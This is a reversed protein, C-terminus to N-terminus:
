NKPEAYLKKGWRQIDIRPIQHKDFLDAVEQNIEKIAGKDTTRVRTEYNYKTGGETFNLSGLYAISGDIVYVKSHFFTGRYNTERKPSLYVKLPFLTSYNYNYIRKNKIRIRFYNAVLLLIGISIFGFLIERYDFFYWIASYIIALSVSAYLLITIINHWNDRTKKAEKDTIRHQNILKYINKERFDSFDEIKDTTVLSIEIGREKLGILKKVLSASLYPSVIKVSSKAREIDKMLKKGAGKGVYLDCNAGNYFM